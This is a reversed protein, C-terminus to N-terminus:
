NLNSTQCVKDGFYPWPWQVEMKDTSHTHADTCPPLECFALFSTGKEQLDVEIMCDITM